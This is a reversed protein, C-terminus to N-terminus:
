IFSNILAPFSPAFYGIGVGFAMAIFIWLTLYNDLFSLKKM